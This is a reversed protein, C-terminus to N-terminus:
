ERGAEWFAAALFAGVGFLLWTAAPLLASAPAGYIWPATTLAVGDLFLAAILAIAMGPVMQRRALTGRRRLLRATGWAIPFCLAFLLIETAGQFLGAANAGRIFLAALVWGVVGTIVMRIVPGGEAASIARGDADTRMSM